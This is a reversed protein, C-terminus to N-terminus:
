CCRTSIKKTKIVCQVLAFLVFKNYKYRMRMTLPTRNFISSLSSSDAQAHQQRVVLTSAHEPPNGNIDGLCGPGLLSTMVQSACRLYPRAAPLSLTPTAGFLNHFM